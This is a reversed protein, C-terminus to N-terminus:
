STTKIRTGSISGKLRWQDGDEKFIRKNNELHSLIENVEVVAVGDEFRDDEGLEYWIDMTPIPQYHSIIELVAKTLNDEYQFLKDTM